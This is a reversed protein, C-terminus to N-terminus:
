ELEGSSQYKKFYYFDEKKFYDSNVCDKKNKFNLGYLSNVKKILDNTKNNGNIKGEDNDQIFERLNFPSEKNQVCSNKFLSKQVDSNKDVQYSNFRESSQNLNNNNKTLIESFNQKQLNLKLSNIKTDNFDKNPIESLSRIVNVKKKNNLNNNLSWKDVFITNEVNLFSKIPKGEEHEHKIKHEISEEMFIYASFFKGDLLKIKQTNKYIIDGCIINALKKKQVSSKSRNEAIALLFIKKFM